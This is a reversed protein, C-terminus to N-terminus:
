HVPCANGAVVPATFTESLERGDLFHLDLALSITTSDGEPVKVLTVVASALDTDDAPTAGPAYALHITKDAATGVQMSAKGPVGVNLPTKRGIETLATVSVLFSGESSDISITFGGSFAVTNPGCDPGREATVKPSTLNVPSSNYNPSGADCGFGVCGTAPLLSAALLLAFPLFRM